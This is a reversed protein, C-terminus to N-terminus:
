YASSVRMENDADFMRQGRLVVVPSGVPVRNYLDIIDQNFMRICGSSVSEGITWPETTGHIRYMTDRGNDYLYLARAGLPNNLGGPMGGAWPANREPERRIMAPTPTWRPWEAKRGVRARGSWALGEKGVGIGYRIARGGERVLYLYRADTDVVITGPEERGYYAVERRLFRPDVESIDTAPLPHPEDPRPGYMAAYVPDIRRVAQQVPPQTSVCAALAVPLLLTLFRLAKRLLSPIPLPAAFM